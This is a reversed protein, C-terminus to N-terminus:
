KVVKQVQYYDAHMLTHFIPGKEENIQYILNKTTYHNFRKYSLIQEM